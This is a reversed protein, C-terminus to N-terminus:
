NRWEHKSFRTSVLLFTLPRTATSESADAPARLDSRVGVGSGVAVVTALGALGMAQDSAFSYKLVMRRPTRSELAMLARRPGASTAPM